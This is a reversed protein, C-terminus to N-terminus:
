AGASAGTGPELPSVTAQGGCISAGDPMPARMPATDDPAIIQMAYGTVCAVQTSAVDSTIVRFTAEDGPKLTIAVEPVSGAFDQVVRKADTRIPAGGRALFEVGPFGYTHCPAASSNHLVFSLVVHGAAGNSGLFAPTLDSAVCAATGQAPATSTTTTASTSSTSTPPTTTGGGSTQSSPHHHHSPPLKSATNTSGGCGALALAALAALVSSTRGPSM